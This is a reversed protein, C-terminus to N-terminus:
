KENRIPQPVADGKRDITDQVVKLKSGAISLAFMLRDYAYKEEKTLNEKKTKTVQSRSPKSLHQGLKAKSFYVQKRTPTEAKGREILGYPIGEDNIPEVTDPVTGTKPEDNAVLPNTPTFLWVTM